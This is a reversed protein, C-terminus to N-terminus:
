ENLLQIASLKQGGDFQFIVDDLSLGGDEEKIIHDQAFESTIIREVESRSMGRNMTLMLERLLRSREKEMRLADHAYSLSVATDFWAYTM